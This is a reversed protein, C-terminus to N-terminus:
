LAVGELLVGAEDYLRLQLADVGRALQARPLEFFFAGGQLQVPWAHGGTDVVTARAVDPALLGSVEFDTRQPGAPGGSASEVFLARSREFPRATCARAGFGRGVSVVCTDGTDAAEAAFVRFADGRRSRFTARLHRRERVISSPSDVTAASASAPTHRRTAADHRVGCAAVLPLLCVLVILRM